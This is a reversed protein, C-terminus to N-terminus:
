SWGGGPRMAAFEPEVKFGLASLFTESERWRAHRRERGKETSDIEGRAFARGSRLRFPEYLSSFLPELVSNVLLAEPSAATSVPGSAESEVSEHFFRGHDRLHYPFNLRRLGAGIKVPMSWTGRAQQKELSFRDELLEREEDSLGGLRLTVMRGAVGIEDVGELSFHTEGRLARLTLNGILSDLAAFSEARGHAEEADLLAQPSASRAALRGFTEEKPDAV